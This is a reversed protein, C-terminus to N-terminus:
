RMSSYPILFARPVIPSPNQARDLVFERGKDDMPVFVREECGGIGDRLSEEAVIVARQRRRGTLSIDEQYGSYRVPPKAVVDLGEAPHM